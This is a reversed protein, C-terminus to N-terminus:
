LLLLGGLGKLYEFINKNKDKLRRKEKLNQLNGGKKPRKVARQQFIAMIVILIQRVLFKATGLSQGPLLTSSASHRAQPLRYM